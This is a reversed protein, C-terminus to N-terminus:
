IMPRAGADIRWAEWTLVSSRCAQAQLDQTLAPMVVSTTGSGSHPGLKGNVHLALEPGTSDYDVRGLEIPEGAFLIFFGLGVAGGDECALDWAFGLEIFVIGEPRRATIIFLPQAASTRGEYTRLRERLPAAMAHFPVGSGALWSTETVGDVVKAVVTPATGQDRVLTTREVTWTLEGTTCLQPEEAADLATFLHTITGSGMRTGLIGAVFFADSFGVHVVELQGQALRIGRPSLDFGHGFPLSTGDECTAADELGVAQFRTVGNRFTSFLVITGGASTTGEYIRLSSPAASAPAPPTLSVAVTTVLLAFLFKRRM